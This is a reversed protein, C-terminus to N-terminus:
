LFVFLLNCFFKTGQNLLTNKYDLREEQDLVVPATIGFFLAALETLGSDLPPEFFLSLSLYLLMPICSIVVTYLVWRLLSACGRLLSESLPRPSPIPIADRCHPCTKYKDKDYYHGNKCRTLNMKPPSRKPHPIPTKLPPSLMSGSILVNSEEKM